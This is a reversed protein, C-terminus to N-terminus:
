GINPRHLYSARIDWIADPLYSLSLSASQADRDRQRENRARAQVELRLHFAESRPLAAHTMNKTHSQAAPEMSNYSM